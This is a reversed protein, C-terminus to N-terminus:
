KSQHEASLIRAVKAVDWGLHRPEHHVNPQVSQEAPSPAFMQRYGTPQATNSKEANAGVSLNLFEIM